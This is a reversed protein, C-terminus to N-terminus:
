KTRQVHIGGEVTRITIKIDPAVRRQASYISSRTYQPNETHVVFADDVDTMKEFPYKSVPKRGPLEANKIIVFGDSKSVDTVPENEWGGTEKEDSM